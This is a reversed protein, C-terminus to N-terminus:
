LSLPVRRHPCRDELAFVVGALDRFLALEEGECVVALTSGPILAESLAIAWWRGDLMRARGNLHLEAEFRQRSRQTRAPFRRPGLRPRKISATTSIISGSGRTARSVYCASGS